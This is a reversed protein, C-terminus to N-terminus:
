RRNACSRLAQRDEAHLLSGTDVLSRPDENERVVTSLHRAPDFAELFADGVFFRGEQPIWIDGLRAQVPLPGTEGLDEGRVVAKSAGVAWVYKPNSLFTQGNPVHGTLSLHGAKMALSGAAGLLKLVGPNRWLANPIVSGGTNMFRTGITDTLSIQWHFDYSGIGTVSFNRSDSWEIKIKERLVRSVSSGFYRTCSRDPPADQIFTWRGAPDRHWVSTYAAGLSSVPWRRLCLIHQSAFTLGMVGYGSFREETGPPLEIRRELEEVIKRPELM